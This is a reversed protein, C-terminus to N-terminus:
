GPAAASLALDATANRGVLDLIVAGDVIAILRAAVAFREAEDAVALRAAVLATFGDAIAGAVSRFPEEGRASLVTVELWIRMYPRVSPARIVAAVERLVLEPAKPTDPALVGRLLTALRASITQLAATVLDDKDTFYYLLMRDSTGAAKALARLNSLALGHALMHDAIRDLAAARRAERVTV